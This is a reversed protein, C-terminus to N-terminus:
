SKHQMLLQPMDSANSFRFFYLRGADDGAGLLPWMNDCSVISVANQCFSDTPLQFHILSSSVQCQFSGVVEKRNLNWILLRGDDSGSFALTLFHLRCFPEVALGTVLLSADPSFCCCTFKASRNVLRLCFEFKCQLGLRWFQLIAGVPVLGYPCLAHLGIFTTTKPALSYPCIPSLMIPEASSVKWTVVVLDAYVAVVIDAGTSFSVNLVGIDSAKEADKPQRRRLARKELQEARSIKAEVVRKFSMIEILDPLALVKVHGKTSGMVIFSETRDIEGCSIGCNFLKTRGIINSRFTFTSKSDAPPTPTLSFLLVAGKDTAVVLLETRNFIKGFVIGGDTTWISGVCVESFFDWFKCDSAGSTSIALCTKIFPVIETGFSDVGPSLQSPHGLSLVGYEPMFALHLMVVKRTHEAQMIEKSASSEYKVNWIRMTGDTSCSAVGSLDSLTQICDVRMIHGTLRGSLHGIKTNVNGFKYPEGPVTWIFIPGFKSGAVVKNGGSGTIAVSFFPEAATSYSLEGIHRWERSTAGSWLRVCGDSSCSVLATGKSNFNLATINGTHGYLTSREDMFDSRCIRIVGHLGACAFIPFRGPPCTTLCTLHDDLQLSKNLSLTLDGFIGESITTWSKILGDFSCSLLQNPAYWAVGTVQSDHVVKAETHPAKLSFSEGNRLAVAAFAILSGNECGVAVAGGGNTGSQSHLSSPCCKVKLQSSIAGSIVNWASITGDRCAVVFYRPDSLESCALVGVLSVSFGNRMTDQSRPKNYHLCWPLLSMFRWVGPYKCLMYTETKHAQRRTSISFKSLPDYCYPSLMSKKHKLDEATILMADKLYVLFSAASKCLDCTDSMNLCAPVTARLSSVALDGVSEMLTNLESIISASESFYAQNILQALVSGCGSSIASDVHIANSFYSKLAHWNKMKQICRIISFSKLSNPRGSDGFDDLSFSASLCADGRILLYKQEMKQYLVAQEHESKSTRMKAVKATKSEAEDEIAQIRSCYLNTSYKQLCDCYMVSGIQFVIADMEVRILLLPELLSLIFSVVNMGINNMFERDVFEGSAKFSGVSKEIYELMAVLLLQETFGWEFFSAAAIGAETWIKARADTYHLLRLRSDIFASIIDAPSSIKDAVPLWHSSSPGQELLARVLHLNGSKAIIAAVLNDRQHTQLAGSCTLNDAPSRVRKEIM